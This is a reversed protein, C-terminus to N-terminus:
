GEDKMREALGWDRIGLGKDNASGGGGHGVEAGLEADFHRLVLLVSNMNELSPDHHPRLCGVAPCRTFDLQVLSFRCQHIRLAAHRTVGARLDLAAPLSDAEDAVNGLSGDLSQVQDVDHCAAITKSRCAITADIGRVALDRGFPGGIGFVPLRQEVEFTVATVM